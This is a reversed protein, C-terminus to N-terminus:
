EFKANRADSKALLESVLTHTAQVQVDSDLSPPGSVGENGTFSKGLARYNNNKVLTYAEYEQLTVRDEDEDSSGSVESGHVFFPDDYDSYASMNPSLPDRYADDMTTLDNFARIPSDPVFM